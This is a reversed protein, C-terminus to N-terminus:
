RPGLHFRWDERGQGEDKIAVLARYLADGQPGLLWQPRHLLLGRLKPIRLPELSGLVLEQVWASVDTCSDHIALLESIIQWRGVGSDDLLTEYEGHDIATDLTDLGNAWAHDLIAVAEDGSVQGVQNAIGYPLGFQVTGLAM